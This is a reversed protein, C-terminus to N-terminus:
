QSHGANPPILQLRLHRKLLKGNHTRPLDHVLIIRHPRQWEAVRDDVDRRIDDPIVRGRPVIFAAIGTDEGDRPFGVVAVDRVMPSEAIAAELHVSSLRAGAVLISDVKRDFFEVEGDATQRALDGTRHWGDKQLLHNKKADRLFFRKSAPTRLWLEGVSGDAVSLGYEDVIRVETTPTPLGISFPRREDYIGTLLAPSAESQACAIQIQARPFLARLGRMVAPIPPSSALALLRVSSLDYRGGLGANVLQWAVHPTVMVSAVRHEQILAAMREMDNPLCVLMLNPSTIAISLITASSSDGIWIPVLMSASRSLEEMTDLTRNHLLNSHPVTYGKGPGTTGSTYRIEAIESGGPPARFQSPEARELMTGVALGRPEFGPPPPIRDSHIIWSVSCERLRRAAEAEPLRGNLHVVTGGIRMVAVYAIAYNVWDLGDFLLAITASRAHPLNDLAAALGKSTEAWQRYSLSVIGDVCIAVHDPAGDARGDLMDCLTKPVGGTGTPLSAVRAWTASLQSPSM